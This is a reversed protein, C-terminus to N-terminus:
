RLADYAIQMRRVLEVWPAQHDDPDRTFPAACQKLTARLAVNEKAREDAIALARRKADQLREIEANKADGVALQNDFAAQLDDREVKLRGIKADKQRLAKMADEYNCYTM